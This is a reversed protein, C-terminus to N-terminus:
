RAEDVEIRLAKRGEPREEFYVTVWARETAALGQTGAAGVVETEPAFLFRHETGAALLTFTGDEISVEDVQGSLWSQQVDAQQGQPAPEAAPADADFPDLGPREAEQCAGLFLSASFLTAIACVKLTMTEAEKLFPTDTDHVFTWPSFFLPPM